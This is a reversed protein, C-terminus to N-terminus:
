KNEGKTEAGVNIPAALELIFLGQVRLVVHTDDLTFVRYTLQLREDPDKRSDLLERMSIM